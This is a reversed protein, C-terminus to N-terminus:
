DKESKQGQTQGPNDSEMPDRYGQRINQTDAFSVAPMRPM